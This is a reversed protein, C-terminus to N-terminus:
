AETSLLRGGQETIPQRVGSNSYNEKTNNNMGLANRKMEEIREISKEAFEMNKTNAEKARAILLQLAAGASKLKESETASANASAIRTLTFDGQLGLERAIKEAARLRLQEHNWIEGVLIEKTQASELLGKVDVATMHAYEERLVDLLNRHLLVLKDLLYRLEGSNELITRSETTRM